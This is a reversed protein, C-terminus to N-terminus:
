NRGTGENSGHGGGSGGVIDIPDSALALPSDPDTAKAVISYNFEREHWFPVEVVRRVGSSVRQWRSRDDPDSTAEDLPHEYVQYHGFQSKFDNIRFEIKKDIPKTILETPSLYLGNLTDKLGRKSFDRLGEKDKFRLVTRLDYRLGAIVQPKELKVVDAIVDVTLTESNTSDYKLEPIRVFHRQVEDRTVVHFGVLNDVDDTDILYIRYLAGPYTARQSPLPGSISEPCLQLGSHTGPARPKLTVPNREIGRHDVWVLEMNFNSENHFLVTRGPERKLNLSSAHPPPDDFIDNPNPTGIWHTLDPLSAVPIDAGTLQVTVKNNSGRSLLQLPLEVVYETYPVRAGAHPGFGARIASVPTGNVEVQAQAKAIAPVPVKVYLKLQREDWSQHEKLLRELSPLQLASVQGSRDPQWGPKIGRRVDEPIAVRRLSTRHRSLHKSLSINKIRLM